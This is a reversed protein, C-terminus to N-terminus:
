GVEGGISDIVIETGTMHVLGGMDRMTSASRSSSSRRSISASSDSCAASANRHRTRRGRRDVRGHVNSVVDTFRPLADLPLSDAVFDVKLPRDLVRPGTAGALALNIPADVDIRALPQRATACSAGRALRAERGRLQFGTRLDPLPAGRFSAGM